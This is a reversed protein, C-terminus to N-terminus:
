EIFYHPSYCEFLMKIKTSCSSTSFILILFYIHTRLSVVCRNTLVNKKKSVSLYQIYAVCQAAACVFVSLDTAEGGVPGRLDKEEEMIM